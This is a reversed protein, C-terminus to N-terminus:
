HSCKSVENTHAIEACNIFTVRRDKYMADKCCNKQLIFAIDNVNVVTKSM